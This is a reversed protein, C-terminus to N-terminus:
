KKEEKTENTILLFMNTNACLVFIIQYLGYCVLKNTTKRGTEGAKQLATPNHILHSLNNFDVHGCFQM